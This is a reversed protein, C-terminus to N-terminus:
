SEEGLIGIDSVWDSVESQIFSVEDQSLKKSISKPLGWYDDFDFELSMRGEMIEKRIFNRNSNIWGVAKLLRPYIRGNRYESLRVTPIRGRSKMKIVDESKVTRRREEIVEVNKWPEFYEELWEKKFENAEKFTKFGDFPEDESVMSLREPTCEMWNLDPHEFQYVRYIVVEKGYVLKKSKM